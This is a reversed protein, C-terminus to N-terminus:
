LICASADEQRLRQSAPLEGPQPEPGDFHRCTCWVWHAARGTLGSLSPSEPSFRAERRTQEKENPWSLAHPNQTEAAKEATPCSHKQVRAVTTCASLLLSSCGRRAPIGQGSGCVCPDHRGQFPWIPQEETRGSEALSDAACPPLSPPQGPAPFQRRAMKLGKGALYTM